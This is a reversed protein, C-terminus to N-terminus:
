QTCMQYTGWSADGSMRKGTYYSKGNYYISTSTVQAATVKEYGVRGLGNNAYLSLSTGDFLMYYYNDYRCNGYNTGTASRQSTGTAVTRSESTVTTTKRVEKTQSNIEQQTVTRTQNQTCDYSYQQFTTGRTVTDTSPSWTKCDYAAGSNTWTGYAPTTPSWSSTFKVDIKSSTPIVVSYDAHAFIPLLTIMLALQKINKKM